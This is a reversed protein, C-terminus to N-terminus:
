ELVRDKDIKLNVKPYKEATLKELENILKMAEDKNKQRSKKVDKLIADASKKGVLYQGQGSLVSIRENVHYYLSIVELNSQLMEEPDTSKFTLDKYIESVANMDAIHIRPYVGMHTLKFFEFESVFSNKIESENLVSLQKRVYFKKKENEENHEEFLVTQFDLMTRELGSRQAKSEEVLSVIRILLKTNGEANKIM